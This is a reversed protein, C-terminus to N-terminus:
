RKERKKLVYRSEDLKEFIDYGSRATNPADYVLIFPADEKRELHPYMYYAAQRKSLSGEELGVWEYEARGPLNKNCFVLFEYLKDGTVYSRKGELSRSLLMKYDHIDGRKVIERITFHLWLVVWMVFLVAFIKNKM